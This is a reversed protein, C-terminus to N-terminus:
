LGPKQGLWDRRNIHDDSSYESNPPVDEYIFFEHLHHDSGGFAAQIVRHFRDFSINLPVVVRRWVSHAELSLAIKLVAAKSSFIPGHYLAELYKYLEESPIM